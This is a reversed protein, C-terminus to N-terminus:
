WWMYFYVFVYILYLFVTLIKYIGTFNYILIIMFPMSFALIRTSYGGIFLNLLILSLISVAFLVNSDNFKSKFNYIICQFYFVFLVLIWFSLYLFSSSLINDNYDSRRDGIYLLIKNKFPGFILSSFFGLFTAIVLKSNNISKINSIYKCFYYIAVFPLMATHTICSIIILILSIIKFKKFLLISWIFFILAFSMRLQSYILDIVLPNILLFIYLINTKKFLFISFSLFILFGIINFIFNLNFFNALFSISYHWFWENKIFDIISLFDIYSLRNTEYMFYNYYNSRDISVISRVKDWPIFAVFFSFIFILLYDIYKKSIKM